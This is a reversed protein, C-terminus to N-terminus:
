DRLRLTLQILDEEMRINRSLMHAIFQSALAPQQRLLRGMRIRAVRLIVSPTIATASGMRVTQGALSGEGFFDGPGLLAVVAERGTKSLVSLKVGGTRIYLVDKCADGPTFITEGRGYKGTTKAIDASDLWAQTNFAPVSRPARGSAKRREM